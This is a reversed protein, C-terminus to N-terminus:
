LRDAPASSALTIGHDWAQTPANRETPLQPVWAAQDGEDHGSESRHVIVGHLGSFFESAWKAFPRETPQTIGLRATRGEEITGVDGFIPNGNLAERQVPGELNEVADHEDVGVVVAWDDNPEPVGDNGRGAASGASM